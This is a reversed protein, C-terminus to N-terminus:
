EVYVEDDRGTIFLSGNEWARRLSSIFKNTIEDCDAKKIPKRIQEEELIMDGRGQSVNKLMKTRFDESKGAILYVIDLDSMVRLQTQIFKDDAKLVDDMTFLRSRLDTSLEPDNDELSSIIGKEADPSMRKLIEALAGRGDMTQSDTTKIKKVKEHMAQDLRRLIDPSISGLKALRYVTDKKDNPSLRNIVDATKVPKLKSLVIARVSAAEDKLLYFLKEGDLNQLYEFPEGDAFPVANRLMTSAKESGFAQELINRATNVGGGEREKQSLEAFEALIVTAEDKEVNRITALEPIIKEVQEQPLHPLIRSAEDVGILLLFKAVRRYVSERGSKTSPSVPVKIFGRRNIVESAYDARKQADSKSSDNQIADNQNVRNQSYGNNSTSKQVVDNKLASNKFATFADNTSSKNDFSDTKRTNSNPTEKTSIHEFQPKKIKVDYEKSHLVELTMPKFAFAQAPQESQKTQEQQKPTVFQKSTASKLTSAKNESDKTKVEQPSEPKVPTSGSAKKYANWRFDNTNM